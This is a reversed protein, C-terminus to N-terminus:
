FIFITSRSVRSTSTTIRKNNGYSVSQLIVYIKLKALHMDTLNIVTGSNTNDNCRNDTNHTSPATYKRNQKSQTM